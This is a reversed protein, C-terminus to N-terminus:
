NKEPAPLAVAVEVMYIKALGCSEIVKQVDGYPAASDARVLVKVASLKKKAVPDETPELHMEAIASLEPGITDKNYDHGYIAWGWHTVDRCIGGNAYVACNVGKDTRHHINITVNREEVDQIKTDKKAHTAPALVVDELQRQTMDASLMFFLLLLFMIDIMPILNPSINEQVEAKQRKRM